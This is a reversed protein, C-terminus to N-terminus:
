TRKTIHIRATELNLFHVYPLHAIKSKEQKMAWANMVFAIFRQSRLLRGTEGNRIKDM